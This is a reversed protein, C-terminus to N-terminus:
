PEAPPPAPETDYRSMLELMEAPLPVGSRQAALDALDSFYNEYGSPAFVGM